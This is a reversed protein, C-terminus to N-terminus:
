PKLIRRVEGVLFLSGTVLVLDKKSANQLALRVAKKANQTTSIVKEKKVFNRLINPDAARPNDARTLIIKDAIKGLIKCIGEIDKDKSIGLILIKKRSKFVEQLTEKLAKASATNQAGDLIIYPAKGIVEFRGPWIAARLGKKIADKSVAINFNRMAEIIGIATAANILQHRGLLKITLNSYKSLLGEISIIQRKQNLSDRKFHLDKGVRYLKAQYRSCRDQIVRDADKEQPSIAVVQGKEKIIGAKEYAIKRLTGGLLHTHELSIQTIGCVLPNVVNTADLRGGLGTELVAFDVNKERFYLLALATYIEFFTLSGSQSNASFKKISSRIKDTYLSLDKKSIMGEFDIDKGSPYEQRPELIRIRERTSYLHPSTFLGTRFGAERLIYSVFAATSGKGKTGAIHICKLNKHPSGLVELFSQIRDLNFDKSYPFSTFREYNVFSQLYKLAEKFTM